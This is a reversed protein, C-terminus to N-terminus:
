ALLTNKVKYTQELRLQEEDFRMGNGCVNLRKPAIPKKPCKEIPQKVIPAFADIEFVYFGYQLDEKGSTGLHDKPAAQEFGGPM